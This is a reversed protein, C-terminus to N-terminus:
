YKYGILSAAIACTCSTGYVNFHFNNSAASVPVTFDAGGSASGLQNAGLTLLHQDNFKLFAHTSASSSGIEYMFYVVRIIAYIQSTCVDDAVPFNPLTVPNAYEGVAKDVKTPVYVFPNGLGITLDVPAPLLYELIPRKVIRWKGSCSIIIKNEAENPKIFKETGDVCMRIADSDVTEEANACDSIDDCVVFGDADVVLSKKTGCGSFKVLSLTGDPGCSFLAVQGTKSGAVDDSDFSVSKTPTPIVRFEGSKMMVFGDKDGEVYGLETVTGDDNMRGVVLRQGSLSSLKLTIPDYNSGDRMKVIGNGDVHAVSHLNPELDRPNGNRDSTRIATGTSVNSVPGNEYTHVEKEKRCPDCSM